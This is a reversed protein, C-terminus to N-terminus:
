LLRGGDEPNDERVSLGPMDRIHCRGTKKSHSFIFIPRAGNTKQVGKASIGHYVNIRRPCFDEGVLKLLRIECSERLEYAAFIVSVRAIGRPLLNKCGEVKTRKIGDLHDDDTLVRIVLRHLGFTEAEGHRM